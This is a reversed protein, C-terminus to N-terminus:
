EKKNKVNLELYSTIRIFDAAMSKVTKGGSGPFDLIGVMYFPSGTLVQIESHNLAISDTLSSSKKVTGDPNLEGKPVDISGVVLEPNSLLNERDRSILIKVRAELPLHSEIKLIMLSSNVQDQILDKVDDNVEESDEDLKVQCSDLVMELPSSVTLQGFLYDEERVIGHTKGDGCIIDGTVTLTKPVPDLLSELQDEFLSTVSTGFPGGAEIATNLSLEQQKDGHIEVSLNAPLDIGNHIELNLSAHPFHANEFGEPITLVQTANNIDVKTSEIVGAIQSFILESMSVRVGVSDSSNFELLEEGSGASNIGTHIILTKGEQPRLTYGDLLLSLNTHNLAPLNCNGSLMKGDKVLEPFDITLESGLDTYNQLNLFLNGKKILASDIISTTPLSVNEEQYVEFAPIKAIGQIVELSDFTFSLSLYKDELNEIEGGSTSITLMIGLHNSFSLHDLILTRKSSDGDAMGQSILITKLTDLSNQDIIKIEVRDLDLGLHNSFTLTSYADKVTVQSYISFTDLDKNIVLTCPPVIGPPGSYLESAYLTMSRSEATNIKIIGLTDKYNIITSDCRLKDVLNITDIEQEFYFGPNGSSDIRLYPEDMKDILDAMDYYKNVLPISLQVNWTPATPKDISCRVLLLFLILLSSFLWVRHPNIYRNERNHLKLPKLNPLMIIDSKVSFCTQNKISLMLIMCVVM